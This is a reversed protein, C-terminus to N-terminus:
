QALYERIVSDAEIAESRARDYEGQIREVNTQYQGLVLGGISPPLTEALKAAEADMKNYAENEATASERNGALLAESTAAAHELAEVKKQLYAEQGSLDVGCAESIANLEELASRFGELAARIKDLSQNTAEPTIAKNADTIAERALQDANLVDSWVLNADRVKGDAEASLRFAQEAATFMGERAGAAESLQGIVVSESSDPHGKLMTQADVSIRNLETMLKPVASLVGERDSAEDANFPDVMLDDAAVLTEDVQALREVLANIQVSYDVRTGQLQLVALVGVALVAAVAVVAVVRVHMRESHRAEKRREVEAQGALTGGGSVGHYSGKSASPAKPASFPKSGRSERADAEARKHDLVDLSLENSSGATHRKIHLFDFNGAM